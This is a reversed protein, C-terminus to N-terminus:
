LSVYAYEYRSDVHALWDEVNAPSISNHRLIAAIDSATVVLIPHGDEVVEGYAQKDVFSTTLMIGFQRYRIRSILRSMQRVGVSNNPSYCKAELACDIKLPCNAKGGPSISYYGLADRGGDRWPRTLSFDVFNNDMKCVLDTACAEFGYPNDKYRDRIAELCQRGQDDSQLQEYKTPIAVIRPARLAVIGDRGEEVFKRWVRPALSLSNDHNDLLARLWEKSIPDSGTDLVTFYSEYNQFRSEGWREGFHSLTGILPFRQTELLLWGLFNCMGAPVQKKSFLSRPFIKGTKSAAM